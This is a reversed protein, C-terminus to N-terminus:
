SFLKNITIVVSGHSQALTRLILEEDDFGMNKIEELETPYKERLEDINTEGMPMDPVSISSSDNTNSNILDPTEFPPSATSSPTPINSNTLNPTEFPPSATPINLNEMNQGLGSMMQNIMNPDINQGLGSMMQNIMNPDMNQGLSSMMNNQMVENLTNPDQILMSINNELINRFPHDNPLGLRQLTMNLIMDKIVPNDFMSTIGSLDSPLNFLNPLAGTPLAGTPLAGTPLAGTPLAGTPLAGTPLAGTPLTEAATTTNPVIPKSSVKKIVSTLVSDPTIKHMDFTDDDKLVKGMYILKINEVLVERKDAILKKVEVITNENLELIIDSGNIFKVKM